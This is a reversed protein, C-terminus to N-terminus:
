TTGLQVEHRIVAGYYSSQAPYNIVARRPAVGPRRRRRDHDGTDMRGPDIRGGAAARRSLAPRLHGTSGSRHHAAAPRPRVRLSQFRAHPRYRGPGAPAPRVLGYGRGAPRGALRRCPGPNHLRAGSVVVGHSVRVGRLGVEGTAQFGAGLFVGGASSRSLRLALGGPNSLTAAPFSVSGGLQSDRLNIEGDARLRRCNVDSGTTVCPAELASGGPATLRGGSLTIRGGIRAHDLYIEGLVTVDPAHLDEEVRLREGHLARGGAYTLRAADLLLSGAIVAGRLRVMGDVTTRTLRLHGDVRVNSGTLGPLRSDQFSLYRAHTWYLSPPEALECEELLVPVEVTLFNLDLTGDIRAGRIRVAAAASPNGLLLKRILGAPVVTGQGAFWTGSNFARRVETELGNSPM